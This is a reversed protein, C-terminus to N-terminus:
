EATRLKYRFRVVKREPKTWVKKDVGSTGQRAALKVLVFKGVYKDHSFLRLEDDDKMNAVVDGILRIIEEVQVKTVGKTTETQAKYVAAVFDSFKKM